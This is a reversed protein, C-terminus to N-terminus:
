LHYASIAYTTIFGIVKRDRGCSNGYPLLCTSFAELFEFKFLQFPQLYLCKHCVSLCVSLCVFPCSIHLIDGLCYYILSIRHIDKPHITRTSELTM